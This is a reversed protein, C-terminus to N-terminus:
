QVSTTAAAEKADVDKGWGMIKFLTCSSAGIFPKVFGPIFTPKNHWTEIHSLIKGTDKQVQLMTTAEIDIKEPVLKKSLWSRKESNVYHQINEVKVEFVDPRSGETVSLSKQDVKVDAFAKILGYFELAIDKHGRVKMLPDMFVAKPDYRERIITSQQKVDRNQFMVLMESVAAQVVQPVPTIAQKAAAPNATAM